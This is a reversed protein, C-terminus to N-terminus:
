MGVSFFSNRIEKEATSMRNSTRVSYEQYFDRLTSELGNKFIRQNYPYNTRLFDTLRNFEAITLPEQYITPYIFRLRLESILEKAKNATITKAEM